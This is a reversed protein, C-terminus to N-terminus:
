KKKIKEEKEQQAKIFINIIKTTAKFLINRM